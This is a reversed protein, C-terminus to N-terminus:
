LRIESEAAKRLRNMIAARAGGETDEIGEVFIVSVGKQDLERLAAFLGRAIDAVDRGLSISWCHIEQQHGDGISLRSYRPLLGSISLPQDLPKVSWLSTDTPKEAIQVIGINKSLADSSGPTVKRSQEHHRAELCRPGWNRTTILGVSIANHLYNGAVNATIEGHVLLVKANPSYHKYKMGPARPIGPEPGQTYAVKVKGWGQVDRLMNISIAGPRLIVPPDALGDVITSELGVKCPGGDLIVDIRGSLDHLVHDATTPSPKSSANASPAALPKGVLQILALALRSSPMRVAITPLSNTVETALPSPTPLPLLITLPGPWFRDILHRYIDPIPDVHSRAGTGSGPKTSLVNRIQSLSNIHIILPNDTPREKARYIGRVALSRTADAALGYVTETPFAVPIDSDRLLSAAELLNAADSNGESLQLEWDELFSQKPGKFVFSGVKSVDVPLVRTRSQSPRVLPEQSTVM